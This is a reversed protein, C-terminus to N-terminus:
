GLVRDTTSLRAWVKRALAQCSQENRQVDYHSILSSIDSPLDANESLGLISKSLTIADHKWILDTNSISYMMDIWLIKGDVQILNPLRADGHQLGSCHLTFLNRFITVVTSETLSQRSIPEGIERILMGAGKGQDLLKYDELVTAVVGTGAANKMMDSEYFRLAVNKTIIKLAASSKDERLVKFVRGNAGAGLFADTDPLQVKFLDCASQLLRTWDNLAGVIFDLFVRESGKDIWAM